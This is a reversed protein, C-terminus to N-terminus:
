GTEWPPRDLLTQDFRARLSDQYPGDYAGSLFRDLGEDHLEQWSAEEDGPRIPFFLTDTAEAARLDGPADGIMLRKSPPYFSSLRELMERKSGAEQGAIVLVYDTLGHEEWERLLAETPTASVVVVDAVDALRQLTEKVYPFPPVGHVMRAVTQNVLKSWELARALDEHGARELEATLSQNDLRTTSEVWRRLNPVEPIQVGRRHVEPRERLLDFTKVLAPFRNIGRWKSYLNVFEAAQRAFKSVAQLRWVYVMNPIFCEKHKLEMTDFACGDSDIGVVFPRRPRYGDFDTAPQVM